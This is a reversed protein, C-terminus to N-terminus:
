HWGGNKLFQDLASYARDANETGDWNERFSGLVTGGIQQQKQKVDGESTSGRPQWDKGLATRTQKLFDAAVAKDGRAWAMYGRLFYADVARPNSRCANSLRKEASALDGRLLAVEGLVVLAGTEEPNLARARDLSEEALDLEAKSTAQLARLTGWQQFARHSQPNVRKLKELQDLAEPISGQVALCQGLYYLSDEHEPSIELAARFLPIAKAIDKDVKLANMAARQKTWFDLQRAKDPSLRNSEAGKTMTSASDRSSGPRAASIKLGAPTRKAVPEGETLELITNAELNDFYNTAGGLWCV